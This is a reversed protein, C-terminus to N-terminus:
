YTFTFINIRNTWLMKTFKYTIDLLAMPKNIYVFLCWNKNKFSMKEHFRGTALTKVIM